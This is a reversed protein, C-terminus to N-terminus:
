FIPDLEDCEDLVVMIPHMGKMSQRAAQERQEASRRGLEEETVLEGTRLKLLPKRPPAFVGTLSTVKREELRAQLEAWTEIDDALELLETMVDSVM